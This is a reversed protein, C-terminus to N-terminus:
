GRADPRCVFVKERSATHGSGAPNFPGNVVINFIAGKRAFVAYLENVGAASSPDVLAATLTRLGAAVKIRAPGNITPTDRTPGNRTLAVPQGDVTLDVGPMPGPARRM